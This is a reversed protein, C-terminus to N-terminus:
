NYMSLTKKIEKSIDKVIPNHNEPNLIEKYNTTEFEKLWKKIYECKPDFKITQSWPNFYRFYPQSDTGTSAVWQWGGNNNSPDYDILKSAFYKEGYRWDIHLVKVLFNGVIMRLRNHMWGTVNLQTMGADIIPIGTKGECWLKFMKKDNNWKIKNGNMNNGIVFPYHYIIFMYFERWYLQTILKNRTGLKDKICHYVERISVVNFKLYASLHTTEIIPIDRESNYSGFKKISKLINLGNKRGGHVYVKDNKTYFKHFDKTYEHQLKTSENIFNKVIHKDIEKIKIKKATNYFPTFKKYANNTGNKVIEIGTLLYDEFMHFNINNKKCLKQIDQQRKTAFPTYDMNTYISEIHETHILKELINIPDDYFIFLRSNHKKLEKDLDDLCECMFQVANNSFYKNKSPNIQTPTFIFIPVLDVNASNLGINDVVRLDRHFLYINM